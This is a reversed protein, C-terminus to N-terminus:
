RLAFDQDLAMTLCSFGFTTWTFSTQDSTGVGRVHLKPAGFFPDDGDLCYGPGLLTDGWLTIFVTRGESPVDGDFAPGSNIDDARVDLVEFVEGAGIPQSVVQGADDGLLSQPQLVVGSAPGSLQLMVMIETMGPPPAMPDVYVNMIAGDAYPLEGCSARVVPPWGGSGAGFGCRGTAPQGDVTGRMEFYFPEFPPLDNCLATEEAQAIGDFGFVPAPWDGAESTQTMPLTRAVSGGIIEDMETLVVESGLNDSLWVRIRVREASAEAHPAIHMLHCYLSGTTGGDTQATGDPSGGGDAIASDVVAGDSVTADTDGGTASGSCAVVLGACAGVCITKVLPRMLRVTWAAPDIDIGSSKTNERPVRL